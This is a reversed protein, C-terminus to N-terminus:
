CARANCLIYSDIAVICGLFYIVKYLALFPLQQLEKSPIECTNMNAGPNLQRKSQFVQSNKLHLAQLSEELEVSCM